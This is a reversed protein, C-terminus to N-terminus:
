ASSTYDVWPLTHSTPFSSVSVRWHIKSNVARWGEANLLPMIVAITVFGRASGGRKALM